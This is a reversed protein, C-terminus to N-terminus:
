WRRRISKKFNNIKQLFEDETGNNTIIIDCMESTVTCSSSSEPPLRKSADIWISLDFHSGQLAKFERDCRIGCYIYARSYVYEGLRALDNHNYACILNHWNDRYNARDNFCDEKTAYRGKGWQDWICVELAAASSSIFAVGLNECFTDKGHRGYGCVMLKIV